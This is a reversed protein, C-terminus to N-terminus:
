TACDTLFACDRKMNFDEEKINRTEESYQHDHCSKVVGGVSQERLWESLSM